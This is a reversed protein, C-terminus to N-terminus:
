KDLKRKAREIIGKSLPEGKDDVLVEVQGCYCFIMNPVISYWTAVEQITFLEGHRSIHSARSTSKLASLHLLKSKIGLDTQAQQAEERRATRMAGVVETQAIRSADFKSVGIRAEINEAIKRPSIGSAMGRSLTSALDGAMDDAIKKMENFTRAQLLSLRRRYPASTLLSDLHPRSVAYAESQIALNSMTLATGQVYAPTVYGSLFWNTQPTGDDILQGILMSIENDMNALTFDDLEFIYTKQEANIANLTVVKYPIRKLIALVGKQVADIRRDFDKIAKQVRKQQGTPDTDSSPLVPSGAM